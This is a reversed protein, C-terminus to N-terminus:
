EWVSSSERNEGLGQFVVRDILKGVGVVKTKAVHMAIHQFPALIGPRSDIFSLVLDIVDSPGLGIL